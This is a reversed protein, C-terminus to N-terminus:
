PQFGGRDSETISRIVRCPVGAAVVNPPVDKTVVSDAGVISDDGITVGQNIDVGGIWIRHGITAPKAYCAGAM